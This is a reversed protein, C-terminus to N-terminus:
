FDADTEFKREEQIAQSAVRKNRQRGPAIYQSASTNYAVENMTSGVRHMAEVKWAEYQIKTQQMLELERLKNKVIEQM